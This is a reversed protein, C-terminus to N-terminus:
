LKRLIEKNDDTNQKIEKEMLKKIESKM